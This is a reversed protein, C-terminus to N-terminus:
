VVGMILFLTNKTSIRVARGKETVNLSLTDEEIHELVDLLYPVHLKFPEELKGSGQCVANLVEQDEREAEVRLEGDKFSFSAFHKAWRGSQFAVAAKAIELMEGRDVTVTGAAVQKAQPLDGVSPPLSPLPPVRSVRKTSDSRLWVLNKEAAMQLSDAESKLADEAMAGPIFLDLGTAVLSSAARFGDLCEITDGRFLVGTLAPRVSDRSLAHITRWIGDLIKGDLVIWGSSPNSAPASPWSGFERVPLRASIGAENSISLKQNELKLALEGPGVANVAGTLARVGVVGVGDSEIDAEVAHIIKSDLNTATVELGAASTELLVTFGNPSSAHRGVAPSVIKLADKLVASDVSLRM